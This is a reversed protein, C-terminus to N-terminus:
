DELSEAISVLHRRIQEELSLHSSKDIQFTIGIKIPDQDSLQYSKRLCDQKNLRLHLKATDDIRNHMERLVEARDPPHFLGLVHPLFYKALRSRISLNLTIIENGYHGKLRRPEPKVEFKDTPCVNNLAEKVRAVEETAHVIVSIQASLTRVRTEGINHVTM